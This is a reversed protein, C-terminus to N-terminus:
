KVAPPSEDPRDLVQQIIFKAAKSRNARGLLKRMDDYLAADNVLAGATGQGSDIKEAVSELHKATRQLSALTDDVRAATGRDAFVRLASDKANLVSLMSVLEQTSTHFDKAIDRMLKADPLTDVFRDLKATTTGVTKIIDTSQTVITSMDTREKTPLFSEAPLIAAEPTGTTVNLFNDGLMGQTELSAESDAKMLDNYPAYVILSLLILPSDGATSIHVSQVSGIDVGGMKIPAGVHLGAANKFSAFFRSKTKLLNLDDSFLLIATAAVAAMVVFFGGVVLKNKRSARKM